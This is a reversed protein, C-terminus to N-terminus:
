LGPKAINPSSGTSLTQSRIPGTITDGKRHAYLLEELHSETQVKKALNPIEDPDGILLGLANCATHALDTLKLCPQPKLHPDSEEKWLLCLGGANKKKKSRGCLIWGFKCRRAITERRDEKSETESLFVINPIPKKKRPLLKWSVSQVTCDEAGSLEMIIIYVWSM